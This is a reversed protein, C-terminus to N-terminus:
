RVSISYWSNEYYKWLLNRRRKQWQKKAEKKLLRREVKEMGRRGGGEEEDDEGSDESEDNEMISSMEPINLKEVELSDVMIMIQGGEFINEHHFPRRSDMVYLKSGEPVQM